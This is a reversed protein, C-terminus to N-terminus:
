AADGEHRHNRHKAAEAEHYAVLAELVGKHRAAQGEHFALWAARNETLRRADYRRESEMWAEQAPREGEEAVRRDHRREVLRDLEAEVAEGRAVDLGEEEREDHVVDGKEDIDRFGILSVGRFVLETEPSARGRNDPRRSAGRM